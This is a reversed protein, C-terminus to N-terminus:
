QMQKWLCYVVYCRPCDGKATVAAADTLGKEAAWDMAARSWDAGTASGGSARCLFTLMQDYPLTGELGFVGGGIGDTIGKEAAWLVAKYYWAAPDTVDSFPSAESEPEPCGAARWFFTVAQARTVTGSPDFRGGGVGDTIRPDHGVAWSVAQAYYDGEHVDSFGGVTPRTDALQRVLGGRLIVAPESVDTSEGGNGLHGYRNRGWTWISGDTKVAIGAYNFYPYGGGGMSIDAVDDMIKVPSRQGSLEV